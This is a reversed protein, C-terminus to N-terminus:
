GRAPRFAANEDDPPGDSIEIMETYGTGVPGRYAQIRQGEVDVVWYESLVAHQSGIPAMNLLDEEILEVRDDKTLVGTAVMKQYRDVSIRTRVREAGVNM